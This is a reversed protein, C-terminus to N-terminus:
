GKYGIASKLIRLEESVDRLQQLFRTKIDEIHIGLELEKGKIYSELKVRATNSEILEARLNDCVEDKNVLV